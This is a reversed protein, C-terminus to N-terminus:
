IGRVDLAFVVEGDNWEPDAVILERMARYWRDTEPDAANAYYAERDTFIGVLMYEDPHADLKFVLEALQGTAAARERTWREGLDILERDRGPQVKMRAITGFM